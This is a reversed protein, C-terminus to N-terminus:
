GVLNQGKGLTILDPILRGYVARHSKSTFLIFDLEHLLSLSARSHVLSILSIQTREYVDQLLIYFRYIFTDNKFSSSHESRLFM